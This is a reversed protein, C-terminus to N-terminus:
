MKDTFVANKKLASNMWDVVNTWNRKAICNLSAPPASIEVFVHPLVSDLNQLCTLRSVESKCCLIFSLSWWRSSVEGQFVVSLPSCAERTTGKANENKEYVPHGQLRCLSPYMCSVCGHKYPKAPVGQLEAEASHRRRAISGLQLLNERRLVAHESWLVSWESSLESCATQILSKSRLCSHSLASNAQSRFPSAVRCLSSLSKM